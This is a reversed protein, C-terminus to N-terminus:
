MHLIVIDGPIKQLKEFKQNQPNDPPLPYFPLSYSLIVFFATQQVM